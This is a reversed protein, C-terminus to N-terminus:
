GGQAHPRMGWSGQTHPRTGWGDQSGQACPRVGLTTLSCSRIGLTTLTCPRMGLATLTCPRAGMCNSSTKQEGSGSPAFLYFTQNLCFTNLHGWWRFMSGGGWTCECFPLLNRLGKGGSWFKSAFVAM